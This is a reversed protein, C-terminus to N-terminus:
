LRRRSSDSLRLGPDNTNAMIGFAAFPLQPSIPPKGSHPPASAKPASLTDEEGAQGQQRRAVLRRALQRSPTSARFVAPPLFLSCYSTCAPRCLLASAPLSDDNASTTRRAYSALSCAALLPLSGDSAEDRESAREREPTGDRPAFAVSSPVLALVRLPEVLRACSRRDLHSEVM